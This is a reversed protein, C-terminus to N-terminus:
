NLSSESLAYNLRLSLNCTELINFIDLSFIHILKKKLGIM